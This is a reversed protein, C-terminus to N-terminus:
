RLLYVEGFEEVDSGPTERSKAFLRFTYLGSPAMKTGNITGDWAENLDESEFILEGWRNYIGLHYTEPKIGDIIPRFVDNVGDGDPTFTNPVYILEKDGVELVKCITDRCGFLSIAELCIDYFQNAVDPFQIMPNSQKGSHLSDFTWEYYFGGSSHNYFQVTSEVINPEQPTFTFSAIPDPHVTIYAPKSISNNCGVSNEVYLSVDYSTRDIFTAWIGNCADSSDIEGGNVSWQCDILPYQASTTNSIFTELPSCGDQIASTFDPAPVPKINITAMGTGTNQCTPVNSDSIQVITYRTTDAVMHTFDTSGAPIIDSFQTGWEDEYVITFPGYGSANIRIDAPLGDCVSPTGSIQAQPLDHVTLTLPQDVIGLCGNADRLSDIVITKTFDGVIALSEPNSGTFVENQNNGWGDTFYLDVPRPFAGPINLDLQAADGLCVADLPTFQPSATPLSNVTINVSGTGSYAKCQAPSGDFVSDIAFTYNGPPLNAITATSIGPGNESGGHAGSADSFYATVVGNGTTTIDLLVPDGDCVSTPGGSQIDATPIPHVEFTIVSTSTGTCTPNSGDAVNVVKYSYTGANVPVIMASHPNNAETGSLPGVSTTNDSMDFTITGNGTVMYQVPVSEGLCIDTVTTSASVTPTPNVKITVTGQAGSTCGASTNDAVGVLEYQHTGPQLSSISQRKPITRSLNFTGVLDSNETYTIDFTNGNGGTVAFELELNQADAECLELYNVLSGNNPDVISIVATPGPNITINAPNGSGDNMCGAAQDRVETIKFSYNGPPLDSPLEMSDLRSSQTFTSDFGNGDTIDVEWPGIGTTRLRLYMGSGQCFVGDSNVIRATPTPYLQYKGSGVGPCISGSNDGVYTISYTVVQNSDFVAPIVTTGPKSLNKLVVEQNDLSNDYHVEFNDGSGSLSIDFQPNNGQCIDTSNEIVAQPAVNVNVAHNQNISVECGPANLVSILRYSTTTLPSLTFSSDAILTDPAEAGSVFVLSLPPFQGQATLDFNVPDGPCIDTKDAVMGGSPNPYFVVPTGPALKFCFDSRDAWNAGNDDGAGPSVYYTTGYSMTGPDFAFRPQDSSDVPNVLSSGSGEHLYYTLVDNSDNVFGGLYQASFNYMGNGCILVTDPKMDGPDSICDCTRTVSVMDQGCGKADEVIFDQTTGSPIPNSTYVAPNSGSLTGAPTVQYSTPDGGTIEFSVVYETRDPTCEVDLNDIKPIDNVTVDVWATDNVCPTQGFVIYRFRYNGGAVGTADFNGSASNLNGNGSTEEEWLGGPQPNGGLFDSLNVSADTCMETQGNEGAEPPAVVQVQVTAKEDQCPADSTRSYEFRFSQGGLGAPNFTANSANFAGGSGDLDTWTGGADPSGQLEDFLKVIGDNACVLVNGNSGARYQRKVTVEVTSTQVTCGNADIRYTYRYTKPLWGIPVANANITSGSLINSNDDDLWEGGPDNGTLLTFLDFASETNCIVTNTPTGATPDDLVNVTLISTADTCPPSGPLRYEFRYTNGGLGTPDFQNGSLGGSGDMDTWNLQFRDDPTGGIQNALGITGGSACVSIERDDGADPQRNITVRVKATQENCNNATVHYTFDYTKPLDNRDIKTADINNGGSGMADSNDDDTWYGGPDNGSLLSFLNFNTETNCISTNGPTGPNAESLVQITVVASQDTCPATGPVTYELRYSGGGLGSPDFNSGSLGGSADLDAWTGGADPNGNLLPFLAIPADGACITTAADAGPDPVRNVTIQTTESKPSCGPASVTYTFNVTMPLSSEPIVTADFLNGSLGGTGDDDAWSGGADNGTIANFLDFATENNCISQPSANGATADSLVDVTVTATSDACPATGAVTYTFRYTNGGLGTPDFVGGSMQGSGDLDAWTGGSQPSGNLENILIINGGQECTTKTNDEGANPRPQITVPVTASQPGCVPHNITYTFNYTAPLAAYSAAGPNVASGSLTGSGDDDTWTGGPDEGTLQAFLDLAADDSCLDTATPAGPNPATQVDVTVTKTLTCTGNDVTLSYTGTNSATAATIVPNQSTSNFGGPGSWAYTVGTINAFLNLDEGECIPTSATPTFDQVPTVNVTVTKDVACGAPAGDTNVSVTYTTTTNTTAVPNYIGEDDLTGNKPIWDYTFTFDRFECGAFRTNPRNNFNDEFSTLTCNADSFNTRAQRLAAFGANHDRTFNGWDATSSSEGDAVYICVQVVLNSVGDWKYAKDLPFENWGMVATHAKRTYVTQLGGQWDGFANANTCGMQIIFNPILRTEGPDLAGIEFDIKTIKGKQFGQAKLENARYIVQTRVHADGFDGFMNADPNNYNNVINGNGVQIEMAQESYPDCTLDNDIGCVVDTDFDTVVELQVPEGPCVDTNPNKTITYDPKVVNVTVQDSCTTTGNDYVVTYTTNQTPQVDPTNGTPLTNGTHQWTYTAAPPNVKIVVNDLGWHDADLNSSSKQIWRIKTSNTADGPIPECYNTWSTRVPDYGGNPDYYNIPKWTAGGDISYELHVGEDPLDIGECPSAEAQVAYRMDFCIVGGTSLNYAQTTANRPAPSTNGFWLYCSGDPSSGCPKDFRASSTAEWGSGITCDDFDNEFVTNGEGIASLSVTEGCLVEMPSAFAEVTCQSLSRNFLFCSATIVLAFQLFQRTYM